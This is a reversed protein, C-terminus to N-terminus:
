IPWTVIEFTNKKVFDRRSANSSSRRWALFSNCVRQGCDRSISQYTKRSWNLLLVWYSPLPFMFAIAWSLMVLLEDIWVLWWPDPVVTWSKYSSNTLSCHPDFAASLSLKSSTRKTNVFDNSTLSFIAPTGCGINFQQSPNTQPHDALCRLFRTLLIGWQWMLVFAIIMPEGLSRLESLLGRCESCCGM